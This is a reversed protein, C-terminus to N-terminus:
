LCEKQWAEFVKQEVRRGEKMEREKAYFGLQLELDSVLM